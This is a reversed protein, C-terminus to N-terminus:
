RSASAPLYPTLDWLKLTKDGSGSLAYRGDPSFAVSWVIDAHGTFTHLERGSSVDWLRLTRDFSGSLALGGDPSFVVSNVFSQHGSFRYLEHGSAIDWLNMTGSEGGSLASRGDPSVAVSYVAYEPGDFPRFKDASALDWLRLAQDQWVGGSIATLSGPLMTFSRGTSAPIRSGASIALPQVAEVHSIDLVRGSAIDWLENKKDTIFLAARGDYSIAVPASPGTFNRLQHGSAMDWVKISKDQSGSLVTREDPLFAVLDVDSHHGKFSSLEYGTAIEWLKLIRDRGGSLAKSGDSSFVVAEVWDTHGTFTRVSQDHIQRWIVAGPALSLYALASAGVTVGLGTFVGRRSLRSGRLEVIRAKTVTEQEPMGAASQVARQKGKAQRASGRQHELTQLKGVEELGPQ